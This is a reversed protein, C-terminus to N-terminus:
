TRNGKGSGSIWACREGTGEALHAVRVPHVAVGGATGGPQVLECCEESQRRSHLVPTRTVAGPEAAVLRYATM